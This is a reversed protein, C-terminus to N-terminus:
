IRFFGKIKRVNKIIFLIVKIKKIEWPIKEIAREMQLEIEKDTM